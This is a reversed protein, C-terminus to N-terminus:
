LSQEGPPNNRDPVDVGVARRNVHLKPDGPEAPLDVTEELEPTV